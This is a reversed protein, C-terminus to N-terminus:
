GHCQDIAPTKIPNITGTKSRNPFLFSPTEEDNLRKQAIHMGELMEKKLYSQFFSVQFKTKIAPIRIPPNKAALKKCFGLGRSNVSEALSDKILRPMLSKLLNIGTSIKEQVFKNVGTPKINKTNPANRIPKPVLYAPPHVEAGVIILRDRICM